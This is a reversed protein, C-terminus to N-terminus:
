VSEDTSTESIAPSVTPALQRLCYPVAALMLAVRQVETDAWYDEFLCAVLFAVLGFLTAAHLDRHEVDDRRLGRWSLYVSGVFLALVAVLSPIGQEAALSAYANHLHAVRQRPATPHAYAPYIHEITDPGHGLLPREKVMTMGADLMCLRDYTSVDELDGITWMRAAVHVPVITAALLVAPVLWALWLGRHLIAALVLVAALAVWANRTLAYALAATLLGTAMWSWWRRWGSRYLMWALLISSALTLVGAFTMYHSFTATIRTELDGAGQAVQVLGQVSHFVAVAVFGYLALRVVRVRDLAVVALLAPMLNLLDGTGERTQRSIPSNLISAVLLVLYVVIPVWLGLSAALAQRRRKWPATALGLILLGNSLGIAAITWLQGFTFLQPWTFPRLQDHVRDVVAQIRPTSM